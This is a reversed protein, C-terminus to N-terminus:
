IVLRQQAPDCGSAWCRCAGPWHRALRSAYIRESREGASSEPRPGPTEGQCGAACSAFVGLGRGGAYLGGGPRAGIAGGTTGRARPGSRPRGAHPSESVAAAPCCGSDSRRRWRPVAPGRWRGKRIGPGLGTTPGLLGRRRRQRMPGPDQSRSESPPDSDADAAARHQRAASAAPEPWRGLGPVPVARRSPSM